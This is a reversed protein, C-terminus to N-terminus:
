RCARLTPGSRPAKLSAPASRDFRTTLARARDLSAPDAKYTVLLMALNNPPSSSHLPLAERTINNEHHVRYAEHELPTAPHLLKLLEVAAAAHFSAPFFYRNVFVVRTTPM